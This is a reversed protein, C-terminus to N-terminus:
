MGLPAMWTMALADAVSSADSIKQYVPTPFVPSAFVSQTSLPVAQTRPVADPLVAARCPM